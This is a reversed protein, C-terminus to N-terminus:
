NLSDNKLQDNFDPIEVSDVKLLVSYDIDRSDFHPTPLDNVSPQRPKDLKIIGFALGLLGLFILIFFWRAKVLGFRERYMRWVEGLIKHRALVVLLAVFVACIAVLSWIKYQPHADMYSPSVGMLLLVLGMVLMVICVKQSLGENDVNDKKEPSINENRRGLNPFKLGLIGCVILVVGAIINLVPGM